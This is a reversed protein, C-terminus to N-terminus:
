KLLEKPFIRRTIYDKKEQDSTITLLQQYDTWTDLLIVQLLRLQSYTFGKKKLEEYSLETYEKFTM